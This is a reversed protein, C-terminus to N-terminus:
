PTTSSILSIHELTVRVITTQANTPGDSTFSFDIGDGQLLHIAEFVRTSKTNVGQARLTVTRPTISTIDIHLVTRRHGNEDPAVIGISDGEWARSREHTQASVDYIDIHATHM